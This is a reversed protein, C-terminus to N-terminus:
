CYLDNLMFTFGIEVQFTTIKLFGLLVPMIPIHKPNTHISKNTKKYIFYLPQMGYANYLIEIIIIKTLINMSLFFRKQYWIITCYNIDM